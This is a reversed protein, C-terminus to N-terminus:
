VGKVLQYIRLKFVKSVKSLIKVTPNAKGEEIKALYTRDVRSLLALQEQSLARRRRETVIRIGLRRYFFNGKM